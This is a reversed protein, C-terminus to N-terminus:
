LEKLWEEQKWQDDLESGIKLLNRFINMYEYVFANVINKCLCKLLFSFFVNAFIFIFIIFFFVGEKLSAFYIQFFFNKVTTCINWPSYLPLLMNLHINEKRLHCTCIVHM